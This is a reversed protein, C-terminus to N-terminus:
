ALEALVSEASFINMAKESAFELLRDALFRPGTELEYEISFEVGGNSRRWDCLCSGCGCAACPQPKPLMQTLDEALAVLEDYESRAVLDDPWEGWEGDVTECAKMDDALAAIVQAAKRITDQDAM